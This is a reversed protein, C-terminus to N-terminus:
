MCLNVLGIDVLRMICKGWRYLSSMCHKKNGGELAIFHHTNVANHCFRERTKRVSMDMDGSGRLKIQGM